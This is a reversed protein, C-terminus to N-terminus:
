CIFLPKKRLAVVLNKNLAYHYWHDVIKDYTTQEARKLNAPAIGDNLCSIKVLGDLNARFTEYDRQQIKSLGDFGDFTTCSKKLVSYSPVGHRQLDQNKKVYDLLCSVLNKSFTEFELKAM